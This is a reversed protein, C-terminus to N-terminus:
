LFRELPRPRTVKLQPPPLSSPAAKDFVRLNPPADVAKAARRALLRAEERLDDFRKVEWANRDVLQRQHRIVKGDTDRVAVDVEVKQRGRFALLVEEGVSARSEELARPLDVGWVKFPKGAENELVVFHSEKEGAKDHYPATGTSILKGVHIRSSQLREVAVDTARAVADPGDGRNLMLKQLLNVAQKQAASLAVQPENLSAEFRENFGYNQTPPVTPTATQRSYERLLVNAKGAADRRLDRRAEEMRAKDLADPRYGSTEIGRLQAQFWAEKKFAQTGALRISDWGRGEALDLMATIVMPDDRRTVLRTGKAEFAVAHQDNREHYIDGARLFRRNISELLMRRRESIPHDSADGRARERPPHTTTGNKDAAQGEGREDHPVSSPPGKREVPVNTEQAASIGEPEEQTGSEQDVKPQRRRGPAISNMTDPGDHADHADPRERIDPGNEKWLRMAHEPDDQYIAALDERITALRHRAAKRVEPDSAELQDWVTDRLRAALSANLAERGSQDGM